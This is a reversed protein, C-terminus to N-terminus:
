VPGSGGWGSPPPAQGPPPGYATPPPGYGAPPPGYGPQYAQAPPAYGYALGIPYGFAPPPPFNSGRWQKVHARVEAPPRAAFLYILAGIWGTIAVVVVWTTKTSSRFWGEPLQCVEVLVIIWFVLAGISLAIVVLWILFFVGAFAAEPAQALVTTM